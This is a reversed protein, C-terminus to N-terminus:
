STKLFSLNFISSKPQQEKSIEMKTREQTPFVNDYWHEYHHFQVCDELVVKQIMIKIMQDSPLWEKFLEQQDEPLESVRIYHIGRYVEETLKATM